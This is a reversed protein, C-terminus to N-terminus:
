STHTNNWKNIQIVVLTKVQKLNYFHKKLNYLTNGLRQMLKGMKAGVTMTTYVRNVHKM